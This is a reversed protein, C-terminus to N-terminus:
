THWCWWSTNRGDMHKRRVVVAGITALREPLVPTEVWRIEM